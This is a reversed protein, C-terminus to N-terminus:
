AGLKTRAKASLTEAVWGIDLEYLKAVRPEGTAANWGMMEYYLKVAAEVDRPKIPEGPGDPGLPEAMRPPLRDDAPTFGQRVNFARAM